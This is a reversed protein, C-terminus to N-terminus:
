LNGNINPLNTQEAASLLFASLATKALNDKEAQSM